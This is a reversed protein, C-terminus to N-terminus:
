RGHGQAAQHLRTLVLAFTLPHPLPPFTCECGASGGAALAADGFKAARPNACKSSPTTPLFLFRKNRNDPWEGQPCQVLVQKCSQTPELPLPRPPAPDHPSIAASLAPLYGLVTDTATSAHRNGEPRLSSAGSYRLACAYGPPGGEAFRPSPPPRASAFACSRRRQHQQHCQSQWRSSILLKEGAGLAGGLGPRTAGAPVGHRPSDMRPPRPPAACFPEAPRAAALRRHTTGLAHPHRVGHAPVACRPVASPSKM